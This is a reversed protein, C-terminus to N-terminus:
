GRGGPRGPQHPKNGARAMSNPWQGIGGDIRRDARRPGKGSTRMKRLFPGESRAILRLQPLGFVM